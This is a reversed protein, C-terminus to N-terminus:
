KTRANRIREIAFQHLPIAVSLLCKCPQNCFEKERKTKKANPIQAYNTCLKHMQANTCKANKANAKTGPIVHGTHQYQIEVFNDAVNSAPTGSNQRECREVTQVLFRSMPQNAHDSIGFALHWISWPNCISIIAIHGYEFLTDLITMNCYPWLSYRSM